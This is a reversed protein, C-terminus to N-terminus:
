LYFVIIGTIIVVIAFAMKATIKEKLVLGSFLPVFIFSLSELIAIEKLQVGKSMAWINILLSVFFVCYSFFVIPNLFEAVKSRHEQRTSIKLFLQSLSCSFIGIIVFIYTWIMDTVM